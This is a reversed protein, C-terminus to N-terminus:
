KKAARRARALAGRLEDARREEVVWVGGARVIVGEAALAQAHERLGDISVGARGAAQPLSLLKLAAPATTVTTM